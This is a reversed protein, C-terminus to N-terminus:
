YNVILFYGEVRQLVAVTHLNTDGVKTTAHYRKYYGVDITLRCIHYKAVVVYLLIGIRHVAWAVKTRRYSTIGVANTSALKRYCALCILQWLVVKSM